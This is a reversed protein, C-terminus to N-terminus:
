AGPGTPLTPERLHRRRLAVRAAEINAGTLTAAMDVVAARYARRSQQVGGQALGSTAAILECRTRLKDPADKQPGEEIQELTQLHVYYGLADYHKKITALNLIRETGTLRVEGPEGSNVLETLASLLRRSPPSQVFRVGRKGAV